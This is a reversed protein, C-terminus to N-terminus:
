QEVYLRAMLFHPAASDPLSELGQRYWDAAAAFDGRVAALIGRRLHEMGRLRSASQDTGGLRLALEDGLYKWKLATFGGEVSYAITVLDSTLGHKFLREALDGPWCWPIPPPAERNNCARPIVLYDVDIDLLVPESIRPLNALPCVRLSRGLLVASIQEDEEAIKPGDGPYSKLVKELRRRVRRRIQESDWTQDPVVWFVEKVMGATVARSIFNAIDLSDEDAVWWMDEHADIHVLIRDCVGARQWAWYAEDHNEMLFIRDPVSVTAETSTLRSQVPIRCDQDTASSEAKPYRWSLPITVPNM